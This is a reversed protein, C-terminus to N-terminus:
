RTAARRPDRRLLAHAGSSDFNGINSGLFLMVLPREDRHRAFASSARGRLEGALAVVTSSRPWRPARWRSHPVRLDILQVRRVRERRRAAAADVLKDGSGCGLEAVDLPGVCPSLIESRM